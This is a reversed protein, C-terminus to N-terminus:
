RIDLDEIIRLDWDDKFKILFIKTKWTIIANNNPYSIIEEQLKSTITDVINEKRDSAEKYYNEIIQAENFVWSDRYFEEYYNLYDRIYKDIVRFVKKTFIIKKM